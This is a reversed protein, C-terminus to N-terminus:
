KNIVYKAQEYDKKHVYIIYEYNLDMNQGYSGTRSRRGSAFTSPSMRNITRVYHKINGQSLKDRIKAQESMSYTLYLEKRNFITIM